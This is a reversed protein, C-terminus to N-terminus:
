FDRKVAKVLLRDFVAHAEPEVRGELAALAEGARDALDSIRQETEAVAGSDRLIARLRDIDDESLGPDGLLTAITDRDAAPSNEWACAILFTHKGERLDDGAPKGTQEPDGFVGLVDDRLQFAEGLPLGFASYLDKLGDDAGALGAGIRLPREITYKAAKFQAVKVATDKSVDRRYESLIDLYQGASVETRMQDFDERARMLAEGPMGSATFLEDSWAMCLDGLLIAAASGFESASGRWAEAEHLAAFRRHVSPAGRRTDSADILDDHILASAQLLELGSVCAVLADSDALGAGRAGWYAFVPRLRKGGGLVFDNVASAYEDLAPDIGRILRGRRELFDALVREIRSNLDM